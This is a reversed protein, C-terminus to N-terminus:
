KKSQSFSRSGNLEDEEDSSPLSDTTSFDESDMLPSRFGKKIDDKRVSARTHLELCRFVGNLDRCHDLASLLDRMLIQQTRIEEVHRHSLCSQEFWVPTPFLLSDVANIAWSPLAFKSLHNITNLKKCFLDLELNLLGDESLFEQYLEVLQARAHKDNSSLGKIEEALVPASKALRVAMQGKVVDFESLIQYTQLPSIIVDHDRKTGMDFKVALAQDIDLDRTQGGDAIGVFDLMGGRAYGLRKPDEHDLRSGLYTKYTSVRSFRQNDIMAQRLGQLEHAVYDTTWLNVPVNDRLKNRTNADYGSVRLHPMINALESWNSVPKSLAQHIVLWDKSRLHSNVSDLHGTVTQVHLSEDKRKLRVNTILGGKNYASTGLAYKSRRAAEVRQLELHIDNKYIIFTAMGEGMSPGKTYTPMCALQAVRYDSGVETELEMLTKNFKVEQCNIIYFDAQESNLMRAIVECAKPGIGDTGCNATIARYKFPMNCGM